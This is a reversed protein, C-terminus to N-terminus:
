EEAAVLRGDIKRFVGPPEAYLYYARLKEVPGEPDEGEVALVMYGVLIEDLRDPYVQITHFLVNEPIDSINGLQGQRLESEEGRLVLCCLAVVLCIVLIAIGLFPRVGGFLMLAGIVAAVATGILTKKM